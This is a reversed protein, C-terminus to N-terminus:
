QSTPYRRHTPPTDPSPRVNSTVLAQRLRAIEAHSPQEGNALRLVIEGVERVVAGLHTAVTQWDADTPQTDGALFYDTSRSLASAVIPWRDLAPLRADEESAYKRVTGYSIGMDAALTALTIGREARKERFAQALRAKVAADVNGM